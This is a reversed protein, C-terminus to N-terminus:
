WDVTRAGVFAALREVAHELNLRAARTPKVGREWWVGKVELVGRERHFKPDLRCVLRDGQLVPLVYYGHVRKSGPTFAEFMYEFGFLRRLRNRDRVVPDFPSLLRMKEPPEPSRKVRKRWDHLAYALRPRTTPANAAGEMPEVMVPEIKGESSKAKCWRGVQTFDAAHWFGALEAPTAVGLRELASSCAWDLHEDEGPM